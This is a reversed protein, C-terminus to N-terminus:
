RRKEPLEVEIPDDTEKERQSGLGVGGLFNTFREV